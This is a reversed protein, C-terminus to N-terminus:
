FILFLDECRKTFKSCSSIPTRRHSGKRMEKKKIRQVLLKGKRVRETGSLIKPSRTQRERSTACRHEDM